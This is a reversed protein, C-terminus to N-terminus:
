IEFIEAQSDPLNQFISCFAYKRAFIPASVASFRASTQGFKPSFKPRGGISAAAPRRREVGGRGTSEARSGSRRRRDEALDGAGVAEEPNLFRNFLISYFQVIKMFKLFNPLKRIHKRLNSQFDVSTVRKQFKAGFGSFFDFTRMFHLIRRLFQFM